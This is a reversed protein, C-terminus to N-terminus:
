GIRVSDAACDVINTMMRPGEDLEVYALVFPTSEAYRGVARRVVTYSYVTGLGASTRWQTDTGHCVPCIARPYWIPRDCDLCWQLRLEGRAAGSWFEETEPTV